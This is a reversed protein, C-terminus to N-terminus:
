KGGFVTRERVETSDEQFRCVYYESYVDHDGEDAGNRDSDYDPNPAQETVWTNAAELTPFVKASEFCGGYLHIALHIGPTRWPAHQVEGNGQNTMQTIEFDAHVDEYTWGQDYPVDAAKEWAEEFSEAEVSLWKGETETASALFEM